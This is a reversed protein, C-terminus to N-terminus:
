LAIAEKVLEPEAAAALQGQVVLVSCPAHHIVYNSVSGLFLEKLGTRGRRGVMVLDSGWDRALACILRSPDGVKQAFEVGVGVATAQDTLSRLMEVGRNEAAQWEEQYRKMLEDTVVPYHYPMYTTPMAPYNKEDPSMVHLLMLAAGTQQALTLAQDFVMRGMASDDVAVLIKYLM